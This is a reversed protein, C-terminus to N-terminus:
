DRYTEAVGCKRLAEHVAVLNEGNLIVGENVDESNKFTVIIEGSHLAPDPLYTPRDRRGTIFWSVISSFRIEHSTTRKRM